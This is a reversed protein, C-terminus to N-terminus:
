AIIIIAIILFIGIIRKIIFLDKMDIFFKLDEIYIKEKVKM